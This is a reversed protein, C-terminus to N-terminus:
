SAPPRAPARVVLAVGIAAVVMGALALATLTEDFLWWAILATVPPVLYMLSSVQTAAGRRILLLLLTIAGLSLVLALWLLAFVLQKSWLMDGTELLLSLPLLVVGAAIFQVVSQTRLDQAGCFRKQYLTGATISMLALVVAAFAASGFVGNGLKNSVVMAVGGFGLVFGAWQRASVRERLSSTTTAAFAATLIPQLGVILASVGAPMGLHISTFVGGLYGAQLLVGAVAVHWLQAGRPWHARVAWALLTMLVIVVLFRWLLFKLPPAYPLGLKAGIFGTAWLLVFLAPMLHSSALQVKATVLAQPSAGESRM